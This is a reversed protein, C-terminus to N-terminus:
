IHRVGRFCARLEQTFLAPQEFAAFHGGKELEHWHIINSYIKGAWSRPVRFIEKPFISIGVPFDIRGQNLGFKEANERYLRASSAATDTLWYLTIDDLMEDRTLASEANGTNDTWAQFKEYIWAALGIPSDDLAYGITQPRTAQEHSYGGGDARSQTLADIADQEAQTTGQTPLPSPVALPITLHIALLGAPKNLALTNTVSAGWDGGQAVWHTYGLRYMLEAWAIAIRASNWGPASPKDSFGYGPLSPVIVHFADEVRGGHATPDTLPGIVKFFEIVSGPWGHTLLIPLANDHKSRVHLFHLQLGQIETRFQPLANIRTEFRRWSYGTRWYEVLRQLRDLPVGQSWGDQTEREPWRATNLRRQLDDLAAQPIAVRFPTVVAANLTQSLRASGLGFLSAAAVGMQIAKRRSVAGVVDDLRRREGPNIDM